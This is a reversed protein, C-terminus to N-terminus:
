IYHGYWYALASLFYYQCILFIIILIITYQGELYKNRAIMENLTAADPPSGPPGFNQLAQLETTTTM